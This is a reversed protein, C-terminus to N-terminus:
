SRQLVQKLNKKRQHISISTSVIQMTTKNKLSYELKLVFVKGDVGSIKTIADFWPALLIQSNERNYFLLYIYVQLACKLM